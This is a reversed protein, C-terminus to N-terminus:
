FIDSVHTTLYLNFGLMTQLETTKHHVCMVHIVPFIEWKIILLNCNATENKM